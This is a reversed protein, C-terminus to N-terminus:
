GGGFPSGGAGGGGSGGVPLNNREAYDQARDPTWGKIALTSVKAKLVYQDEDGPSDDEPDAKPFYVFVAVDELEDESPATEEEDGNLREAVQQDQYDQYSIGQQRAARLADREQQWNLRERANSASESTWALDEAAEAEYNSIEAEGIVIEARFDPYDEFTIEDGTEREHEHAGAKLESLVTEALEHALRWSRAENADVIAETRIGLFVLITAVLIASALLVELLTFGGQSDGTVRRHGNM